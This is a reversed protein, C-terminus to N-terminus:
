ETLNVGHTAKVGRVDGEEDLLVTVERYGLRELDGRLAEAQEGGLELLVVGGPRLFRPSETLVRRLIETGDPGGDYPLPSEFALADHHLLTLAPTPVYPVVGVIVDAGGALAAPLPTFLDGEFAEVGNSWACAVARPDIDSGVVLAGPRASSLVKAIAGTGTCVDIATGTAPLHGVAQRALAQSHWRPVYVGPGVLIERGCFLMRGVIWELPEGTLRRALLSGLLESDRAAAVLLEDTEEEPAVFGATSLEEVLAARDYPVPVCSNSWAVPRSMELRQM